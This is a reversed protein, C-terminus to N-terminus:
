AVEGLSNGIVAILPLVTERRRKRSESHNIERCERSRCIPRQSNTGKVDRRCDPRHAIMQGIVLRKTELM